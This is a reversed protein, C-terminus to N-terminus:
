SDLLSTLHDLLGFTIIEKREEKGFYKVADRASAPSTPALPPACFEAMYVSHSTNEDPADKGLSHVKRGKRQAFM